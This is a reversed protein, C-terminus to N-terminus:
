SFDITEYIQLLTHYNVDADHNCLARKRAAAAYGDEAEKDGWMKLVAESLAEANGGEFLIGEKESFLSPIGGVAAAVCPVGLLMAEGLSNPSNELASPCLFLEASLYQKKMGKDDLKGLFTIKEELKNKKILDLLYKGYSSIKLREKLTSYRIISQGAVYVRTDPYVELIKPLAWLVYHLGKIPYDGQSLFISHPRCNEYSWQGEYFVPRMTENMPYYRLGPNVALVTEKDWATRGTVHKALRLTEKELEGRKRFKKQQQVLNDQKLFDRFLFRRFVGGPLDSSYAEALAFCIGQLGLLLKNKDKCAKVAALTHPYETGFCHIVDPRFSEYIESLESELRKDYKEPRATNEYFGFVSISGAEVAIKERYGALDKEVPFCIGLTIENTSENSDGQPCGHFLVQGVLGTIWGEKVNEDRKLHRAVMPPMINCIWLVRM